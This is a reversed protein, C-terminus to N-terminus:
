PYGGKQLLAILRDYCLQDRATDQEMQELYLIHVAKLVAQKVTQPIAAVSAYGAVFTVTIGNIDGRVAPWSQGYALRVFPRTGSTDLTYNSSSWTQSDGAGDLYAISTVSSVPRLGRFDFWDSAPWDTMKYTHSGTYCVIRADHEVQQRGQVIWAAIQENRDGVELPISCQRKADDVSIPEQVATPETTRIPESIPHCEAAYAIM